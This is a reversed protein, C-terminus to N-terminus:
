LKYKLGVSINSLGSISESIGTNKYSAVKYPVILQAELKDSIGYETYAQITIDTYDGVNEQKEGDFQFADYALSTLGLQVYAKGKERTWPSQANSFQFVFLCIAFLNLCKEM